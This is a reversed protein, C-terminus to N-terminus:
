CQISSHCKWYICVTKLEVNTNTDARVERNADIIGYLVDMSVEWQVLLIKM